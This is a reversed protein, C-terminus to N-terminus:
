SGEKLFSFCLTKYWFLNTFSALLLRETKLLYMLSIVWLLSWHQGIWVCFLSMGENLFNHLLGLANSFFPFDDKGWLNFQPVVPGGTSQKNKCSSSKWKWESRIQEFGVSEGHSQNQRLNGHHRGNHQTIYIFTFILIWFYQELLWCLLVFLVFDAGEQQTVSLYCPSIQLM